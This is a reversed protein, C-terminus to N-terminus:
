EMLTINREQQASTVSFDPKLPKRFILVMAGIFLGVIALAAVVLSYKGIWVSLLSSREIIVNLTQPKVSEVGPLSVQLSVMETQDFLFRRSKQFPLSICRPELPQLMQKNGMRVEVPGANKFARETLPGALLPNVIVNATEDGRANLTSAPRGSEDMLVLRIPKPAPIVADISDNVLDLAVATSTDAEVSFFLSLTRSQGETLSTEVFLSLSQRGSSFESPSIKEVGQCVLSTKGPIPGDVFLECHVITQVRNKQLDVWIPPEVRKITISVPTKAPEPLPMSSILIEKRGLSTAPTGFIDFGEISILPNKSVIAQGFPIRRILKDGVKAVTKPIPALLLDNGGAIDFRIPMGLTSPHSPITQIELEVFGALQGKKPNGWKEFKGGIKNVTFSAISKLKPLPVKKKISKFKKQDVFFEIEFVQNKTSEDSKSIPIVIQFKKKGSNDITVTKKPLQSNNCTATVLQNKSFMESTFQLELSLLHTDNRPGRESKLVSVDAKLVLAKITSSTADIVSLSYKQLRKVMVDTSAGWRKVIMRTPEGNRDRAQLLAGLRVEAKDREQSIDAGDSILIVLASKNRLREIRDSAANLGAAINTGGTITLARVADIATGRDLCVIAPRAINDFPIVVFPNGKDIPITRALDECEKKATAMNQGSMSGSCDVVVITESRAPQVILSIVVFVFANKWFM